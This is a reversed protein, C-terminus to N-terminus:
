MAGSTNSPAVQKFDSTQDSPMVRMSSASPLFGKPAEFTAATVFDIQM